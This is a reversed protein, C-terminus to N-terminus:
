TPRRENDAQGDGRNLDDLFLGKLHQQNIAVWLFAPLLLPLILTSLQYLLAIMNPVVFWYKAPESFAPGLGIMMTKASVAAISFAMVLYMLLLALAIKLKPQWRWLASQLALFFPFSYSLIRLNSDLAIAYGASRAPVLRGQLEGWNTVARASNGVLDLQKFSDPLWVSLIEDAIGVAPELWFSGIYWWAIFAPVLALIIKLFLIGPRM